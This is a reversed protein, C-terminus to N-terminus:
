KISWIEICLYIDNVEEESWLKSTVLAEVLDSGCLLKIQIQSQNINDKVNDPIWEVDENNINNDIDNSIYSNLINQHHQLIEKTSLFSKQRIEWTSTRIWDSSKVALNLLDCRTASDALDKNSSSDSM